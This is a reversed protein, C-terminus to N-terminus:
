RCLQESLLIVCGGADRNEFFTGFGRVGHLEHLLLALEKQSGRTEQLCVVQHRSVLRKVSAVKKRALSHDSWVSNFLRHVNWSVVSLKDFIEVPFYAKPDLFESPHPNDDPDSDSPTSSSSTSSSSSSSDAFDQAPYSVRGVRRGRCVRCPRAM